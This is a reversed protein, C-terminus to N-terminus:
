ISKCFTSQMSLTNFTRPELNKLMNPQNLAVRWALKFELCSPKLNHVHDCIVSMRVVITILTPLTLFSGLIFWSAAGCLVHCPIMGIILSQPYKPDTLSIVILWIKGSNNLNSLHQQKITTVIGLERIIAEDVWFNYLPTEKVINAFMIWPIKARPACQQKM